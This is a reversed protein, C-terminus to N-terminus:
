CSTSWTKRCATSADLVRAARRRDESRDARLRADVVAARPAARQRAHPRLRARVAGDDGQRAHPSLNQVDIIRPKLLCNAHRQKAIGEAPVGIPCIRKPLSAGAVRSARVAIANSRTCSSSWRKTSTPPSSPATPCRRSRHGEFKKPDVEVWSPFGIQEALQLSSKIRLQTKAVERARRRHRRGQGPVVPHQGAQREGHDGQAVRAPASRRAHLRLGHPLRRQRPAIELLQLLNEGTTGKRARDGEDFYRRFQRELVGYMRTVKQKERLQTGYDSIRPGVQAGHQGPKRTSSASTDLSRRASKLFLDTGERRSLKCKPGIYRAVTNEKYRGAPNTELSEANCAAPATVDSSAEAAPLRQAAGADRRLHSHDQPGAREARAGGVRPRPRPGQHARRPEQRRAGARRPRGGRGGGARRVPTSKRSGKFGAGGSTAWSLANGQRDTITIITNNFSAHVHAIGDSSTRRSRRARARQQQPHRPWTDTGRRSREPPPRPCACPRARARAPVRM